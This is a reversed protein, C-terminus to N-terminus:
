RTRFSGMGPTCAHIYHLARFTEEPTHEQLYQGSPMGAGKFM